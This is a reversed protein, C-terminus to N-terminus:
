TGREDGQKEIQHQKQYQAREKANTRWASILRVGGDRETFVITILRGDVNGIARRRIEGYDRRQDVVTLMPQDFARTVDVFDIGHKVVNSWRKSDNWEFRM